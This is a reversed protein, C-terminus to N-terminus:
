NVGYKLYYMVKQTVLKQIKNKFSVSNILKEAREKLEPYDTIVTTPKLHSLIQIATENAVKLLYLEKNFETRTYIKKETKSKRKFLNRIKRLM